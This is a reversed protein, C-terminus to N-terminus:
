TENTEMVETLTEVAYDLQQRTMTLPPTLTLVNHNVGDATLILGRRLARVVIDFACKADSKGTAPDIIELGVMLGRGRIEGVGSVVSFQSSLAKRLREGLKWSGVVLKRARIEEIQALAMACGLPNGFFTSTHIPDGEAEPWADMVRAKGVCASLPFGGSMGKGVCILDPVVSFHEVAFWKGTRGFGTYVEDAILVLGHADCFQRVMPLFDTPPVIIGARGQIPELLVAGIPAHRLAKSM